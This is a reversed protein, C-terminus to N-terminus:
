VAEGWRPRRNGLFVHSEEMECLTSGVCVATTAAVCCLNSQQVFQLTRSCVYALRSRSWHAHGGGKRDRLGPWRLMRGLFADGHRLHVLAQHRISESSRRTVSLPPKTSSCYSVISYCAGQHPLFSASWQALMLVTPVVSVSPLCYEVTIPTFMSERSSELCFFFRPQPNSVKIAGMGFLTAGTVLCAVVFLVAPSSDPKILPVIVYRRTLAIM